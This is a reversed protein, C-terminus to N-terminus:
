EDSCEGDVDGVELFTENIGNEGGDKVNLGMFAVNM